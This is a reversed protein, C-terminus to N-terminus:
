RQSFGCCHAKSINHTNTNLSLPFLGSTECTLGNDLKVATKIIYKRAILMRSTWVNKLVDKFRKELADLDATPGVWYTVPNDYPSFLPLFTLLLVM